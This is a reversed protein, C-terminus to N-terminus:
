SSSVPVNNKNFELSFFIMLEKEKAPFFVEKSPNWNQRLLMNLKSM